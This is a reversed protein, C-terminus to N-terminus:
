GMLNFVCKTRLPPSNDLNIPTSGIILGQDNYIFKRKNETARLTYLTDVININGQNLTKFWKEQNIKLTEDKNLLSKFQDFAINKNKSGKMKIIERFSGDELKLAYVKPALFVAEKIDYELKMKGLEGGVMEKPLEIDTFISDTDSYYIHDQYKIKLLAMHMRAYATTFIAIPTSIQLLNYKEKKERSEKLRKLSNKTLEQGVMFYNGLNLLDKYTFIEDEIIEEETYFSYETIVPSM